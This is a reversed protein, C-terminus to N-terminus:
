RAGRRWAELEARLRENEALAAEKAAREAEKAVREAEEAALAREKAAREAEEAALAREKAAREAEKAAREAGEAALAREKAARETEKAAREAEKAAREAEEATPWLRTGARDDSLRLRRGGDTLVLWAGLYPSRVPGPGAYVRVLEGRRDRAWLQLRHPGGGARPGALLPDFVWLEGTGSEAYREPGGVYDKYPHGASVVELAVKPATHGPLWTCVSALEDFAPPPPAYLAVDPDLGERPHAEDFRLARNRAVRAPRGTRGTRAAWAVLLLVMLAVVEDHLTSEPVPEEPLLWAAPRPETDHRGRPAPLAPQSM